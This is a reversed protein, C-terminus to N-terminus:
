RRRDEISGDIQMVPVKVWVKVVEKCSRLQIRATSLSISNPLPELDALDQWQYIVFPQSYVQETM